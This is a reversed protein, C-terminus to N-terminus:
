QQRRVVSSNCEGMGGWVHDLDSFSIPHIFEIEARRIPHIFQFTPHPRTSQSPVFRITAVRAGSATLTHLVIPQLPPALM